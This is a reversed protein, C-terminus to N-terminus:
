VVDGIVFTGDNWSPEQDLYEMMEMFNKHQEPRDANARYSEKDKFVAIGVLDGEDDPNMVFWAKMGQPRSQDQEFYDILAEKKGQKPKLGFITGYM